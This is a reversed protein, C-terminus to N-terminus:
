ITAFNHFAFLITIKRWFFYPFQSKQFFINTNQLFFIEGHKEFDAFIIYLIYLLTFITLIAKKVIIRTKELFKKQFEHSTLIAM